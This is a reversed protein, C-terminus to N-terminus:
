KLSKEGQIRGGTIAVGDYERKELVDAVVEPNSTRNKNLNVKTWKKGASKSISELSKLILNFESECEGETLIIHGSVESTDGLDTTTIESNIDRM